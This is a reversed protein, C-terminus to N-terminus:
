TILPNMQSFGSGNGYVWADRFNHWFGRRHSTIGHETAISKLLSYNHETIPMSKYFFDKKEKASWKDITMCLTAIQQLRQTPDQIDDYSEDWFESFTKYGLSRLYKLTGPAGVMIFPHRYSIPNWIKETNFIIPEVFFSETVVSILSQKYYAQNKGWSNVIKGVDSVDDLDVTMPLLDVVANLDQETVNWHNYYIENVHHLFHTDQSPCTKTMSFFSSNLLDAKYFLVALNNRNFKHNRNFCLFTKNILDYSLNRPEEIEASEHMQLSAKFEFYEITSIHMRNEKLIGREFCYRDYMDHAQPNGVQFIIKNLPISVKRFYEHLAYILREDYLSEQGLEILIYGNYYQIKDIVAPMKASTSLLDAETNSFWSEKNLGMVFEYIFVDNNELFLSPVPDYGKVRSFYEHSIYNTRLNILPNSITFPQNNDYVNTPGIWDYALKIRKM